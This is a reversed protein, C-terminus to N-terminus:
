VQWSVTKSEGDNRVAWGAARERGGRFTHLM